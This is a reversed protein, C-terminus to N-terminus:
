DEPSQATDAGTSTEESDGGPGESEMGNKRVAEGIGGSLTLHMDAKPPLGLEARLANAGEWAIPLKYVDIGAFRSWEREGDRSGPNKPDRPCTRGCALVGDLSRSSRRAWARVM